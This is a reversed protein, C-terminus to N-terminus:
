INAKTMYENLQKEYYLIHDHVSIHIAFRQEISRRGEVSFKTRMRADGLLLLISDAIQQINDPDIMLGNEGQEILEPGSARTSYIVPCGVAMAELPANAFAENYSPFIAAAATSFAAFLQDRTAFGEFVVSDRSAPDLLPEFLHVKGKGFVRLRADPRTQHVTNWAKLLSYIGKRRTLTGTFVITPTADAPRYINAPLDISNYLVEVPRHNDYLSVYSDATYKSVAVLADARDLHKKENKLTTPDIKEQMDRAIYSATGNCKIVLPVPLKPWSFSNPLYPFYENFDPWEIIDIKFKAILELLFSHFALVCRRADWTRIGSLKLLKLIITDPLSYDNKILGIDLPSRRRWVKVGMDEEYDKEGYGPVYLGAVLVTHGAQVLARALVRTGSGIGGSRGPPYENCVFLINM